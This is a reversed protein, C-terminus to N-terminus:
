EFGVMDNMDHSFFTEDYLCQYLKLGEFVEGNSGKDKYPCKVSELESYSVVRCYRLGSDPNLVNDSGGKSVCEAVLRDLM